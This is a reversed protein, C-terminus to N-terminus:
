NVIRYRIITLQKFYSLGENVFKPHNLVHFLLIWNSHERNQFCNLLWESNFDILFYEHYRYEWRGLGQCRSHWNGWLLFPGFLFITSVFGTFILSLGTTSMEDKWVENISPFFISSVLPSPQADMLNERFKPLGGTIRLVVLSRCSSYSSSQRFINQHSSTQNGAITFKRTTTWSFHDQFRNMIPITRYAWGYSPMSPVIICESPKSAMEENMHTSSPHLPPAFHICLTRM